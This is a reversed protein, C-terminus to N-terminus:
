ADLFRVAARVVRPGPWPPSFAVYRPTWASPEFKAEYGALSAFGYRRDLHRFAFTLTRGIWRARRDLQEDSGRFPAIGLAASRAGAERLGAMTEVVLLESAGNVAGPARFVDELYWGGRAYIPSCAAFAELRGDRRAVFIRKEGVEALPSPRLVSRTVPRGVVAEWKSLLDRLERDLAPDRRDAEQVVVGERRAHNVCWRVNKGRNGAPPRWSALEFWPEEGVKLASFGCSLSARATLEDVALLCIGRRGARTERAFRRLLTETDAPACLPDSWVVAAGPSTLYCVAGEPALFARWPAEYRLLFSLPSRGHRRLLELVAERPYVAEQGTDAVSSSSMHEVVNM